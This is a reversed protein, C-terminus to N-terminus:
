GENIMSRDYVHSPVVDELLGDDRPLGVGDGSPNRVRTGQVLSSQLNTTSNSSIQNFSLTPFCGNVYNDQILYTSGMQAPLTCPNATPTNSLISSFGSNPLFGTPFGIGRGMIPSPHTHQGEYTTIVISPDHLCREVRKKVNCATSTCRYYSRPFPSNKVAKQGYKRWRYGDELHDVESKTMFAIRPEREKKKRKQNTKMPKLPQKTCTKNQPNQDEQEEEKVLNHDLAPQEDNSASSISSSNPTAPFPNSVESAEQVEHGSPTIMESMGDLVSSLSEFRQYRLLEM